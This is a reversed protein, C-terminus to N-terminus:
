SSGSDRGGDAPAVPEASSGGSKDPPPYKGSARRFLVIGCPVAGIGVFVPYVVWAGRPLPKATAAVVVLLGIAVVVYWIAAATHAVGVIKAPLERPQVFVFVVLPTLAIVIMIWVPLVNQWLEALMAAIALCGVGLTLKYKADSWSLV